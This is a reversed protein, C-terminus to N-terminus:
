RHCINTFKQQEAFEGFRHEANQVAFHALKGSKAEHIQFTQRQEETSKRSAPLQLAESCARLRWRQPENFERLKTTTYLTERRNRICIFFNNDLLLAYSYCFQSMSFEFRAKQKEPTLLRTSPKAPERFFRAMNCVNLIKKVSCQVPLAGAM